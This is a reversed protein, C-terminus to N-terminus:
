RTFGLLTGRRALAMWEEKEAGDDMMEAATAADEWRGCRLAVAVSAALLRARAGPDRLPDFDVVEAIFAYLDPDVRLLEFRTHGHTVERGPRKALCAFAEVGQGFYEAENSAAYFDLFVGRARAAQYLSRIKVRQLHTFAYLHVQHALEHALTDFGFQLADDLSEIGTAARLGGMGRVDDWVRGDFTRRGRLSARAPADTTRELEDLLDHCAGMAVLRRLRQHFLGLARRAAAKREGSLAAFAPVFQGALEEDLPPEPWADRLRAFEPVTAPMSLTYRQTLMAEGLLRHAVPHGPAAALARAFADVAAAHEGRRALRVGEDLDRSAPADRPPTLGSGLRVHAEIHMPELRLVEHYAAAAEDNRQQRFLASAYAAFLESCARADPQRLAEEARAVAGDFDRARLRARVELAAHEPSADRLVAARVYRLALGAVGLELHCRSLWPWVGEAHDALIQARRFSALAEVPDNRELLERGVRLAHEPTRAAPPPAPFPASQGQGAAPGALVALAIAGLLCCATGDRRLTGLTASGCGVRRSPLSM